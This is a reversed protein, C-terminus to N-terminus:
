QNEEPPEPMMREVEAEWRADCHECLQGHPSLFQVQTECDQCRGCEARMRSLNQKLMEAHLEPGFAGEAKHFLLWVELALIPEPANLDLLKQLRKVSDRLRDMCDEQFTSM